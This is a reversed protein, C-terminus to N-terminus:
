GPAVARSNSVRAERHFRRASETCRQAADHRWAQLMPIRLVEKYDACRDIRVVGAEIGGSGQGRERKSQAVVQHLVLLARSHQLWGSSSVMIRARPKLKM